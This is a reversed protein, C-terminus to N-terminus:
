CCAPRLSHLGAPLLGSLVALLWPLCPKVVVTMGEPWEVNLDGQPPWHHRQHLM